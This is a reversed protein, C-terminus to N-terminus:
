AAGRRDSRFRELADGYKVADFIVDTATASLLAAGNALGSSLGKNRLESRPECLLETDDTCFGLDSVRDTISQLV